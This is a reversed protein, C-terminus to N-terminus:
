CPIAPKHPGFPRVNSSLFILYEEELFYLRGMEMRAVVETADIDKNKKLTLAKEYLKLARPFDRQETLYMAMRWLSRPEQPDQEVM